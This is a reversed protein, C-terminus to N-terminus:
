RRPTPRKRPLPIHGTITPEDASAQANPAQQLIARATQLFNDAGEPHPDIQTETEVAPMKDAVPLRQDAEVEPPPTVFYTFCAAAAAAVLVGPVALRLSIMEGVKLGIEVLRGLNPQSKARVLRRAFIPSRAKDSTRYASCRKTPPKAFRASPRSALLM